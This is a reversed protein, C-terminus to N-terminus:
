DIIQSIQVRTHNIGGDMEVFRSDMYFFLNSLLSKWWSCLFHKYTSIFFKLLFGMSENKYMTNMSNM